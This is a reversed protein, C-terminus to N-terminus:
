CVGIATMKFIVLKISIHTLVTEYDLALIVFFLDYVSLTYSLPYLFTSSRPNLDSLVCGVMIIKQINYSLGVIKIKLTIIM